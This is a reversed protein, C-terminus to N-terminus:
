EDRELAALAARMAQRRELVETWYREWGDHTDQCRSIYEQFPIDAHEFFRKVAAHAEVLARAFALTVEPTLLEERDGNAYDAGAADHARKAADLSADAAVLDHALAIVSTM